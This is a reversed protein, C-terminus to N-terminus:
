PTSAEQLRVPQPSRTIHAERSDLAAAHMTETEVEGIRGKGFDVSIEVDKEADKNLIIIAVKGSPLL